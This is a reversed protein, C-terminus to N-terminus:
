MIVVINAFLDIFLACCILFQHGMFNAFFGVRVERNARESERERAIEKLSV